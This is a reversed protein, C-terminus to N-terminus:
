ERTITEDLNLLVRSLLTWSAFEQQDNGAFKADAVIASADLEGAKLRRRQEDLLQQLTVVEDAQPTRSVCRRMAYVIREDDTPGGDQLTKAALARACEMFLPENLSTLAQLPTNSRNRRVCSVNGPVADFAELMPYPVSRFRFTYLGRRCRSSGTEETWTKPGYSAPPDFLFRPAPPYVSPGGMQTNLLGSAALTIDRVVEADVRFRSGRALQRNYPDRAQLPANLHSSQRYTASSVILRHVHKLSWNNELLELALWDLLAPHSPPTSQSGLDDSTEVFGIGFYAQWIRNVISRATTPSRKDVLWRAFALRSRESDDPLHHLFEPVGPEVARVPTLFDGRELLSTTRPQQREKLVLQGSGAPHKKWLQEIEANAAAWATVTTRWFRFVEAQRSPSRKATPIRVIERVSQPAPDAVPNVTTAVSFRFRGMLCNHNDNNNWGGHKMTPQFTVITGQPFGVPSEPVFVIKRSQNRRAPDNDTTWATKADGDIAFAAPGVIRKDGDKAKIDKLYEPQASEAPNVDATASVLKLKTQKTPADAPAIYISMESLAATGLKSRGPGNHPLNGHTLLELRFGTINQAKTQTKFQPAASKPAYSASVISQDELVKYKTGEYPLDFPTLVEWDIETKIFAQEWDSMQQQWDPEATQLNQEIAAIQTLITARLQQEEGTYCAIIADDTSNLFAFMRYYDEQRLPDYKHSHCQACQVTLGLMSKGIADMRDYMAEMRFQEPDAGGEENIMSNRLFGTAVLDGQTPNPLLDGAIQRIVFQDYPMDANFADIVWDRYFWMERPADKEYGNSDAYRAADLWIRGWREGFHPSDLLRDVQKQFAADTDDAVFYDIEEISPPLGVLDLSLRRLLTVRDTEPSPSQKRGELQNLVFADIPNRLWEVHDVPPVPTRVPPVFAWHKHYKAGAAIWRRLLDVDKPTLSKGSDAPPMKLDADDSTIRVIFESESPNGPIVAHQHAAEEDDLRLDAERHEEDPGHCQFCNDSLIPRIDRQFDVAEDAVVNATVLSGCAAFGITLVRMGVMRFKGMPKEQRGPMKGMGPRILLPSNGLLLKAINKVM